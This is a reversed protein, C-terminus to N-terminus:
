SRTNSMRFALRRRPPVGDTDARDHVGAFVVSALTFSTTVDQANAAVSFLLTLLTVIPKLPRRRRFIAGLIARFALGWQAPPSIHSLLIHATTRSAIDCSQQLSVRFLTTFVVPVNHEANTLLPVMEYDDFCPFVLAREIPVGRRSAPSFM